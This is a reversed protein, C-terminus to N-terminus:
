LHQVAVGRLRRGRLGLRGLAVVGQAGILGKAHNAEAGVGRATQGLVHRGCVQIDDLGHLGLGLSVERAAHTLCHKEGDDVM